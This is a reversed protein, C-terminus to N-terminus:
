AGAKSDYITEFGGYIMRKGDFLAMDMGKMREDEMATKWGADRTEKSPWFIWSFVLDEGEEAQVARYFDTVKGHAVDDGFAEVVHLAGHEVFVAGAKACMERYEERKGPYVPAVFGDVYSM